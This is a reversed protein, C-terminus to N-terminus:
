KNKGHHHHAHWRKPDHSTKGLAIAQGQAYFPTYAGLHSEAERRALSEDDLVSDQGFYGEQVDSVAMEGEGEEEGEGEVEEGGEEDIDLAESGDDSARGSKPRKLVFKATKGAGKRAKKWAATTSQLLGKAKRAPATQGEAASSTTGSTVSPAFFSDPDHLNDRAGEMSSNNATDREEGEDEDEYDYDGEAGGM